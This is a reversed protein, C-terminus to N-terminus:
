AEKKMAAGALAVVAVRFFKMGERMTSSFDARWNLLHQLDAYQEYAQFLDPYYITEKQQGMYFELPTLAPVKKSEKEPAPSAGQPPEAKAGRPPKEAKVKVVKHGRKRHQYALERYALDKECTECRYAM